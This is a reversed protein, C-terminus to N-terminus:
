KRLFQKSYFGPKRRTPFHFQPLFPVFLSFFMQRIVNSSEDHHLRMHVAPELTTPRFHTYISPIFVYTALFTSFVEVTHVLHVILAWFTRKKQEDFGPMFHGYIEFPDYFSEIQALDYFLIHFKVGTFSIPPYVPSCLSELGYPSEVVVGNNTRFLSRLPM